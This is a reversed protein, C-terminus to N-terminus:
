EAPLLLTKLLQWFAVTIRQKRKNEEVSFGFVLLHRQHDWFDIQYRTTCVSGRAIESRETHQTSEGKGRDSVM